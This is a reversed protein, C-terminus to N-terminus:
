MMRMQNAFEPLIQMKKSAINKKKNFKTAKKWTAEINEM